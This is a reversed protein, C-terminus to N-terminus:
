RQKWQKVRKSQLLGVSICCYLLIILNPIILDFIETLKKLKIELLYHYLAFYFFTGTFYFLAGSSIWFMPERLLSMKEGEAMLQYLYACSLFILIASGTILSYNNFDRIGQFFFLNLLAFSIFFLLLLNAGLKIGQYQLQNKFIQIWIPFQIITFINYLWGTEDNKIYKLYMGIFEVLVVLSLLFVFLFLVSNRLRNIVLLSVVLSLLEFWFPLPFNQLIM